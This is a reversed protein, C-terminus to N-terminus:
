GKGGESPPPESRKRKRSYIGLVVVSVAVIVVITLLALGAPSSLSFASSKYSYRTLNMSSGFLSLPDASANKMQVYNGVKESYYWYGTGSSNPGTGGMVMVEWCSFTGAPVTVQVNSRTIMLALGADVTSNRSTNGGLLNSHFWSNVVASTNTMVTTGVALPHAGIYDDLALSASAIFGISVPVTIEVLATHAKLEVDLIASGRVEAFDSQLRDLNGRIDVTGPLPGMGPVTVNVEGKGTLNLRFVDQITGGVAERLSEHVTMRITASGTSNFGPPGGVTEYEWFDGIRIGNVAASANPPILLGVLCVAALFVIYQKKGLM